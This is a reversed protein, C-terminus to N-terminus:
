LQEFFSFLYPPRSEIILYYFLFGAIGNPTDDKSLGLGAYMHPFVLLPLPHASNSCGFILSEFFIFLVVADPYILSDTGCGLPAAM